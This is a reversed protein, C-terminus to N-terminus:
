GIIFSKLRSALSPKETSVSIELRQGKGASAVLKKQGNEVVYFEDKLTVCGEDGEILNGLGDVIM